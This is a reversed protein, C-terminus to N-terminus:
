GVTGYCQFRGTFLDFQVHFYFFVQSAVILLLGGLISGLGIGIMLLIEPNFQIESIREADLFRSLDV